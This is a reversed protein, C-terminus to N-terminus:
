EAQPIVFFVQHVYSLHVRNHQLSAAKTFTVPLMPTMHAIVQGHLNRSQRIATEAAAQIFADDNAFGM